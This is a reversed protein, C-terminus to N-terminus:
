CSGCCSAWRTFTAAVTWITPRAVVPRIAPRSDTRAVYLGPQRRFLGGATAGDVKSSFSINFDALKPTGDAAVLVNAPKVDRHLVGRQHAYALAAALRSGLWCVVQPWTAGALRHRLPSDSPPSEGREALAQDIVELLRSGSRMSPPLRRIVM